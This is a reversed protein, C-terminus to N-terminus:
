YDTSLMDFSVNPPFPQGPHEQRWHESSRTRLQAVRAKAAEYSQEANDILEKGGVGDKFLNRDRFPSAAKVQGVFQVFPYQQALEM